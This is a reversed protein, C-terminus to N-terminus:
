EDQEMEEDEESGGEWGVAGEIPRPQYVRRAKESDKDFLGYKIALNAVDRRYILKCKVGPYLKKLLRLKRNKQRVLRQKQWDGTCAMKAVDTRATVTM